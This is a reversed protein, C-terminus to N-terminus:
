ARQRANMVLLATGGVLLAVGGLIPPLHSRDRTEVTAHIPGIDLVTEQRTYNLGYYALTAAGLLALVIGALSMPRM